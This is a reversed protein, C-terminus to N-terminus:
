LAALIWSTSWGGRPSIEVVHCPRTERLLLYTIEAEIDDLAPMLRPCRKLGLRELITAREPANGAQGVGADEYLARQATRARILEPRFKGYLSLIADAEMRMAVEELRDRSLVHRSGRPARRSSWRATVPLTARGRRSHGPSRVTATELTRSSSGCLTG